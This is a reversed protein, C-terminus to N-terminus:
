NTQTQMSRPHVDRNVSRALEEFSPAPGQRPLPLPKGKATKLSPEAVWRTFVQTAPSHRPARMPADTSGAQTLRSVERRNLGTVTSIRSVMRHAAANSHAARAADVFAKKLMEEAAAFSMGRAVSLAALPQMLTQLAEMLSAHDLSISPAPGVTSKAAKAKATTKRTTM